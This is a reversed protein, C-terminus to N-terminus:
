IHILSLHIDAHTLNDAFSRLAQFSLLLLLFPILDALLARYQARWILLAIVLAILIEITPAVGRIMSWLSLVVLFTIQIILISKNDLSGLEGLKSKKNNTEM